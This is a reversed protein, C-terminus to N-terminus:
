GRTARLAERLAAAVRRFGAAEGAGHHAGPHFVLSEVGTERCRRAEALFCERSLGATRRETAALNVLYTAHAVVRPSGAKALAARLSAAEGPALDRMAWQRNSKLFVQIAECRLAKAEAAAAPLGGATSCHAGIRAM